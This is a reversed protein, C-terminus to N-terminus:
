IGGGQTQVSMIKSAGNQTVVHVEIRMWGISNRNKTSEYYYYCNSEILVCDKLGSEYKLKTLRMNMEAPSIFEGNAENQLSLISALTNRYPQYSAWTLFIGAAVLAALILAGIKIKKM